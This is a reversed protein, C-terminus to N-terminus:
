VVIGVNEEIEDMDNSNASQYINKTTMCSLMEKTAEFSVCSGSNYKVCDSALLIGNLTNTVLRNRSKTKSLNVKSFVRECDANSHPLVLADLAFTAITKFPFEGLTNKWSVLKAWFVDVDEEKKIELPFDVLPLNRWENDLQQLMTLSDEGKPAIRPLATAIEVISPMKQRFDHSLANKPALMHITSMVPDSFNWRKKIEQAGVELFKRCRQFFEKKKEPKSMIDPHNIGTAVGVGLYLQNNNLQKEHRAPDIAGLETQMVYSRELFCLLIDRYVDVIKNHLDTVVVKSSQFYSNLSTFKPLVWQLFLYYLKLFPDCLWDLVQQGSLLRESIVMDTFFLKLAQWQELMRSVVALLSLWRTQSPHLIKHPKIDLFLQFQVLQASRKSSHKLFNYVGRALDECRSPLQKCAESACLHASHCICKVIVLGPCVDRFRSSVSNYAGMMVNCGDSGFGVINELPINHEEFSKMIGSFLNASTAGENARASDNGSYVQQLKWFKSVIKLCGEDFYRVVICSTKSCSIDTSEDTLISFKMEQLKKALTTKYTSGIVNTVVGAVKKRKLNIGSVIKSDPFNEKLLDNLHDAAKFAINHEAFFASLKIEASKVMVETNEDTKVSSFAKVISCTSSVSSVNNLHKKSVSHQSLVGKEAKLSINCVRCRAKFVDGDAELWSKFEPQDEWQKRYKQPRHQGLSSASVRKLTQSLKRGGSDSM